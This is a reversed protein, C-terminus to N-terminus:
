ERPGRPIAVGLDLGPTIKIFESLPLLIDCYQEVNETLEVECSHLFVVLRISDLSWFPM